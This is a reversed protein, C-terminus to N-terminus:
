QWKGLRLTKQVRTPHFLTTIQKDLDGILLIDRNPLYGKTRLQVALQSHFIPTPREALTDCICPTDRHLKALTELLAKTDEIKAAKGAATMRKVRNKFYIRYPEYEFRLAPLQALMDATKPFYQVHNPDIFGLFTGGWTLGFQKGLDGLFTKYYQINQLQRNKHLIAIDSALGFNHQSLPTASKGMTLHRRQYGSGRLDSQIRLTHNPHQHLYLQMMSDRKSVFTQRLSKLLPEYRNYPYDPRDALTWLYTRDLWTLTDYHPLTSTAVVIYPREKLSSAIVITSKQIQGNKVIVMFVQPIANLLDKLTDTQSFPLVLDLAELSENHQTTDCYETQWAIKKNSNEIECAICLLMSSVASFYLALRGM